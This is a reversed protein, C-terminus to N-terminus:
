FCNMLSEQIKVIPKQKTTNTTNTFIPVIGGFTAAKVMGWEGNLLCHLLKKACQVRCKASRVYYKTVAVCDIWVGGFITSGGSSLRSFVTPERVYNLM